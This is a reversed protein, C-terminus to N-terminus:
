HTRPLVRVEADHGSGALNTDCTYLPVDLAEALAPYSADHCTFRHRLDWVRDALPSLEHRTITM